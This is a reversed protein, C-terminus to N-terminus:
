GHFGIEPKRLGMQALCGSSLENATQGYFTSMVGSFQNSISSQAKKTSWNEFKEEVILGAAKGVPSISILHAALWVRIQDVDDQETIGKATLCQLIKGIMTLAVALFPAIKADTITEPLGTINRVDEATAAM